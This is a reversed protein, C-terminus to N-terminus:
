KLKQDNSNTPYIKNEIKPALAFYKEKQAKAPKKKNCVKASYTQTLSYSYDM